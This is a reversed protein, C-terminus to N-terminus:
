FGKIMNSLASTEHELDDIRAKVADGISILGIIETGNVVPLHRFRGITMRQLLAESTDELTCTQVERTMIDGVPRALCEPGDKGLVRIIDRESIVGDIHTGDASCILAGIRRSSLVAAAEAISATPAVTEVVSSGKQRLIAAVIM